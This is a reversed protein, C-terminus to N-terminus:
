NLLNLGSARLSSSDACQDIQADGALMACHNRCGVQHDASFCEFDDEFQRPMHEVLHRGALSKLISHLIIESKQLLHSKPAGMSM